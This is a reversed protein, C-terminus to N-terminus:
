CHTNWTHESAIFAFSKDRIFVPLVLIGDSVFEGNQEIKPPTLEYVKNYRSEESVFLGNICNLFEGCADQTDEDLRDYLMRGFVTAVSCMGNSIDAIGSIFDTQGEIYQTVPSVANYKDTMYAQGIYAHRDIGRITAKVAMVALKRCEAAGAPLYMDVIGELDAARFSDMQEDTFGNEIQFGYLIADAEEISCLDEDILRQIFALYENGQKQLLEEVQEESLYGKEVAIEGFKKDVMTQVFNVQRTQATTMYGEMVALVGIKMRAKDQIDLVRELAERTIIGTNVMFNGLLYEIM